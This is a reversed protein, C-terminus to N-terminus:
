HYKMANINIWYISEDALLRMRKLGKYNIYLHETAKKLISMPKMIRKIGKIKIGHMEVKEDKFSWCSM